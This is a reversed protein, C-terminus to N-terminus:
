GYRAGNARLWQVASRCDELQAPYIATGSLRYQISAVAIGWKTLDRVNVHYRNNGFKWSGGFIWVVVPVPKEAKPVYLDMHLEHGQPSAFVLDTHVKEGADRARPAPAACSALHLVVGILALGTCAGRRTTSSSTFPSCHMPERWESVSKVM